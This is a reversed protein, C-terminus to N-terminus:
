ARAGIRDKVGLFPKEVAFHLIMAAATSIAIFLVAFISFSGPALTNALVLSLPVLPLHILYLSYSIRATVFLMTSRFLARPGGGFILGYTIAAFTFAVLTPQLTKDWWTIDRMM